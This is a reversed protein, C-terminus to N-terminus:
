KKLKEWESNQAPNANFLIRYVEEREDNTGKGSFINVLEDRKYETFLQPLQSMNKATRAQDLLSLAERVANRGTEANEAMHDLGERHYKYILQRYCEMTGDLYDNLLSFRNQSDGFAKWGTQGLNEAANAIDEAIHFQETGGLPAMSDMDYGIVMYAYYSLLAVLNNDLRDPGAYELQDTPQYQFNFDADKVSYTTTTYTSNYVPRSVTLLLSCELLNDEEKYTNVTIAFSCNIRESERFQMETWRRENMFSTVKSQLDDFVDTRTTNGVQAHNVSVRVNLEQANIGITAFCLGLLTCLLYRM